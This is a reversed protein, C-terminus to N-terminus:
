SDRNERVMEWFPLSGPELFVKNVVRFGRKGYWEVNEETETELYLPRGERDSKEILSQLMAGGLGKGQNERTVGLLQLYIFDRDGMNQKMDSSSVDFLPKMRNALEMGMALASPISGSRIMRWLTYGAERGETWACVGELEESPAYVGGYTQCFKLPVTFSALRNKVPVGSFFHIWLPDHAFANVMAEAAPILDRKTLDYM